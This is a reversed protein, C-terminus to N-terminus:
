LCDFAPRKVTGSGGEVGRKNEGIRM